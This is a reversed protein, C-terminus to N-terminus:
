KLKSLIPFDFCNIWARQFTFTDQFSLYINSDCHETSTQKKKKKAPTPNTKNGRYIGTQILMQEFNHPKKSLTKKPGRLNTIQIFTLNKKQGDDTVWIESWHM